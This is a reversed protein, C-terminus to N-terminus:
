YLEADVLLQRLKDAPIGLNSGAYDPLIASNIAVVNGYIDLVPGGSGGHTTEADYAIMDESARGVIGRSALPIIRGAKSLREAVSWFDLDGSEQLEGLFLKGSQALISRLGTPYGLVIIEDGPDPLAAALRLGKIPSGPLSYRLLAIDEDVEPGILEVDVPAEIGPLYAIFRIMVPELGKTALLKINSDNEWPMGVHRNTILAGKDGVLFGTGIFQRQATEGQGDMSLLPVGNPLFMPKGNEGIVHRLMRGTEPEIFGYAGLLLIISPVSQSIVRASAGTRFELETIRETTTTLNTGLERRLMELDDPTLADEKLRALTRSFIDLETIGSEIQDHLLANIRNQQFIMAALLLLAIVVGFRFLLTTERTLRRFVQGLARSFRRLVPQRSSKFYAASDSVIERVTRPVPHQRDFIFYRSIPGHEGFEIVDHHQLRRTGVNKRNVWLVADGCKEIVHADGTWHIRAFVDDAPKGATAVRVRILGDTGLVLDTGTQGLWSISGRSPGTLHEVVAVVGATDRESREHLTPRKM